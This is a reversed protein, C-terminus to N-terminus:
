KSKRWKQMREWNKPIGPDAFHLGGEPRLIGQRIFYEILERLQSEFRGVSKILEEHNVPSNDPSMAHLETFLRQAVRKRIPPAMSTYIHEARAVYETASEPAEGFDEVLDMSVEVREAPAAAAASSGGSSFRSSGDDGGVGPNRKEGTIWENLRDWKDVIEPDSMGVNTSFKLDGEPSANVIGAAHFVSLVDIIRSAFRGIAHSLSDITLSMESGPINATRGLVTLLKRAIRKDLASRLAMYANEARVDVPGSMDVRFDSSAAGIRNANQEELTITVVKRKRRGSQKRIEGLVESWDRMLQRVSKEIQVLPEQEFYIEEALLRSLKKLLEVTLV